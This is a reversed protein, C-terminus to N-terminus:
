RHINLEVIGSGYKGNLTTALEDYKHHGTGVAAEYAGIGPDLAILNHHRRRFHSM